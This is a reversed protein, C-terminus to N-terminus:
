FQNEKTALQEIKKQSLGTAKSISQISVGEELLRIAIKRKEQQTVQQTVKQTVQQTVQQMAQQMGQQIGQQVRREMEQQGLTMVKDEVTPSIKNHLLLWFNKLDTLDGENYLYHLLDALDDRCGLKNLRQFSSLLVTELYTQLDKDFVHKLSLLFAQGRVQNQLKTRLEEDPIAALDILCGPTKFLNDFLPKAEEPEIMDRLTLSHRYPRSANSIVIPYIFPLKNSKANSESAKRIHDWILGIYCFRRLPLWVDPQRQQEILIWIYADGHGKKCRTKFLVDNALFRHEEDVFTDPQRELYDLDVLAKVEPPLYAELVDRATAINGLVRRVLKDHPKDVPSKKLTTEEM